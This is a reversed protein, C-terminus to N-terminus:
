DGPATEATQTEDSTEPEDSLADTLLELQTMCGNAILASALETPEQPVPDILVFDRSMWVDDIAIYHPGPALPEPLSALHEGAPFTAFQVTVAAADSVRVEQESEADSRWLRGVNRDSQLCHTGVQAIDVDWLNPSSSAPPDDTLRTAAVRAQGRRSTLSALAANGSRSRRQAPIFTGPGQFVRTGSDLLITITDGARLTIRQTDSTQTGVPYREASPGSSRVVVGAHAASAGM